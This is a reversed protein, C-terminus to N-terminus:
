APTAANSSASSRATPTSTSMRGVRSRSCARMTRMEGALPTPALQRLHAAGRVPLADRTSLSGLMGVRATRSSPPSPSPAHWESEEGPQPRTPVPGSALVLPRKVVLEVREECGIGVVHHLRDVALGHRHDEVGGLLPAHRETRGPALGPRELARASRCAQLRSSGGASIRGSRPNRSPRSRGREVAVGPPEERAPSGATIRGTPAETLMEPKIEIM